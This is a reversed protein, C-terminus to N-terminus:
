GAIGYPLIDCHLNFMSLSKLACYLAYSSCNRALTSSASPSVGHLSSVNYRFALRIGQEGMTSFVSVPTM